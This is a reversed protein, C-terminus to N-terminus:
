TVLLSKTKTSNFTVLWPTAWHKMTRLDEELQQTAENTNDFTIYLSTDDAIIQNTITYETINKYIM